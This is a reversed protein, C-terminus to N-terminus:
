KLYDDLRAFSYGQAKWLPIMYDLAQATYKANEQMHMVLVTGNGVTIYKGDGISRRTLRRIMDNYSSAEYDGTSYAGSVSYDFGTDFVQTLGIKSVALTPPRFMRSLSPKGDVVVDGTYKYLKEYSTVLDKRLALAEADTLSTMRNGSHDVSDALPIHNDTHSAIQHGQEAITRLLNPNAGVYGTRIFFTAKVDNKELVYLLENVSQETGWDDFTLFLVKDDTFTGDKDLRRIEDGTFGPLKEKQNVTVNGYYREALYRFREEDTKMDTLVNKDMTVDTQKKKVFKYKEPSQLLSRATTVAFRSADEIEGTQYSRYALSDVFQEMFGDLLTGFITKGAAADADKEYFSMNFCVFSGRMLRVRNIGELAQPVEDLTIEKDKTQVITFTNGVLQCGSVRIAEQTEEVPPDYPMFVIDSDIDDRWAAYKKWNNLYSMVADFGQPYDNTAKYAIGIEHGDALIQEVMTQQHMLEDLTLFFTGSGGRKQLRDAADLVAAQHGAGYFVFSLARETTYVMNQKKALRGENEKRMKSIEKASLKPINGSEAMVTQLDTVSLGEATAQKKIESLTKKDVTDLMYFAGAFCDKPNEATVLRINLLKAAKRVSTLNEKEAPVFLREGSDSYQELAEIGAEMEAFAETPTIKEGGEGAIGISCGAALIRKIEAQRKTLEEATAFFTIETKNKKLLKLVTDLEEGRPIGMTGIGITKKDTLCYRYVEALEADKASVMAKLLAAGDTKQFQNVYETEIGRSQIAETLWQVQTLIPVTEKEEAKEQKLEAQPDVAPKAATIAPEGQAQEAAGNLDVVVITDGKVGDLFAEADAKETFSNEDLVNKEAPHLVAEYGSVAAGRLIDSTVATGSCYILPVQVDAMTSLSEGSKLMSEVIERETRTHLNTEGSAGNSILKCDEALLNDVFEENTLGDAASIAFSARIGNKRILELIKENTDDDETFGVFVIGLRNQEAAANDAIVQAPAAAYFQEMAKDVASDGTEIRGDVYATADSSYSRNMFFAAWIAVAIVVLGVLIGLLVYSRTRKKKVTEVM